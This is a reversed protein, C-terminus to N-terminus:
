TAQYYRAEWRTTHGKSGHLHVVSQWGQIQPFAGAAASPGASGRGPVASVKPRVPAHSIVVRVRGQMGSSSPHLLFGGQPQVVSTQGVHAMVAAPRSGTLPSAAACWFLQDASSLYNSLTRCAACLPQSMQLLGLPWGWMQASLANELFAAAPHRHCEFRCSGDSLCQCVSMPSHSCTPHGASGALPTCICSIQWLVRFKLRRFRTRRTIRALWKGEPKPALTALAHSCTLHCSYSFSFM